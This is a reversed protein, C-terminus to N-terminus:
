ARFIEVPEAFKRLAGNADLFQGANLEDVARREVFIFVHDAGAIGDLRQDGILNRDREESM